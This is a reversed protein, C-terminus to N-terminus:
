LQNDPKKKKFGLDIKILIKWISIVFLLSYADVYTQRKFGIFAADAREGDKLKTIIKKM